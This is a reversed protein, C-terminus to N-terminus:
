YYQQAYKNKLFIFFYKNEFFYKQYTYEQMINNKVKIKNLWNLIHIMQNFLFIIKTFLYM